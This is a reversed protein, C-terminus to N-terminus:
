PLYVVQVLYLGEPPATPGAQTRDRSALIEGVAAPTLKGRGVEVLTGVLNRVMRYLFGGATIEIELGGEVELIDLQFLERETEGEKRGAAAFAAFDHRGVLVRAASRMASLDLPPNVRWVRSCELPSHVSRCLIRYRYTRWAPSYRAHFDAGVEEVQLIAIEAPLHTNAGRLINGPPLRSHTIFHAVQGLAHVGADTRGAGHLRVSEGLVAELAAEVQAQITEVGPQVQWGAYATGDYELTLKLKRM